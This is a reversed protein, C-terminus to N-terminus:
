SAPKRHKYAHFKLRASSQDCDLEIYVGDPAMSGVASELQRALSAVATPLDSLREDVVIDKDRIALDTM